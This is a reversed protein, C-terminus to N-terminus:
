PVASAGKLHSMRGFQQKALAAQGSRSYALGLQYYASPELPQLAIAHRLASIADQYKTMAILTKGRLLFVDYDAPSAREAQALEKLVATYDVPSEALMSQAIVVRLMPYDPKRRALDRLTQTALGPEGADRWAQALIPYADIRDPFGRILEDLIRTAPQAKGEALLASGLALSLNPSPSLRQRAQELIAIAAQGKQQAQYIRALAVYHNEQEPNLRVAFQFHKEAEELEGLSEYGFGALAAAAARLNGPIQAQEEVGLADQIADLFAGAENELAARAISADADAIGSQEVRLSEALALDYQKQRTLDQAFDAHLRGQRPFRKAADALAMKLRDIDGALSHVKVLMALALAYDPRMRDAQELVDRAKSFDGAALAATALAYLDYYSRLDETALCSAARFDRAAQVFEGHRFAVQAKRDLGLFRTRTEQPTLAPAPCDAASGYFSLILSLLLLRM